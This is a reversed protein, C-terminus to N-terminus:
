SQSSTLNRWFAITEDLGRRDDTPWDDALPMEKVYLLFQLVAAEAHPSLIKLRSPLLESCTALQFTALEHLFWDGEKRLALQILSPLYYRFGEPTLQTVPFYGCFEIDELTLSQQDRSRFLPDHAACEECHLYDTFHEPRPANKFADTVLDILESKNM